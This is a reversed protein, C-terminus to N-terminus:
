GWPSLPMNCPSICIMQLMMIAVAHPYSCSSLYHLWPWVGYLTCLSHLHLSMVHVPYHLFSVHADHVFHHQCVYAPRHFATTILRDLRISACTDTHKLQLAVLRAYMSDSKSGNHQTHYGILRTRVNTLESHGKPMHVVAYDLPFTDMVPLTSQVPPVVANTRRIVQALLALLLWYYLTRNIGM